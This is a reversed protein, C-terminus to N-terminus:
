GDMVGGSQKMWERIKEKAKHLSIELDFSHEKAIRYAENFNFGYKDRIAKVVDMKKQFSQDITM